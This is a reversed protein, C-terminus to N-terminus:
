PKQVPRGTFAKIFTGFRQRFERDARTKWLIVPATVSGVLAFSVTDPWWPMASPSLFHLLLPLVIGGVAFAVLYGRM